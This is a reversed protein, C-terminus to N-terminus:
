RIASRNPILAFITLVDNIYRVKTVTPKPKANYKNKANQIRILSIIYVLREETKSKYNIFLGRKDNNLDFIYVAITISTMSIQIPM